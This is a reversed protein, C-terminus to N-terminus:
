LKLNKIIVKQWPKLLVQLFDNIGNVFLKNSHRDIQRKIVIFCFLETKVQGFRYKFIEM